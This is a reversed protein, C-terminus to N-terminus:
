IFSYATLTTITLSFYAMAKNCMHASLYHCVHTPTGMKIPPHNVATCLTYLMGPYDAKELVGAAILQKIEWKEPSTMRTMGRAPGKEERVITSSDPRDPNRALTEGREEGRYLMQNVAANLDEGTHQDM